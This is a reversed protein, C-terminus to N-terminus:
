QKAWGGEESETWAGDGAILVRLARHRGPTTAHLFQPPWASKNLLLDM